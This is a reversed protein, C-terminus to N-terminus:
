ILQLCIKIDIPALQQHHISYTFFIFLNESLCSIFLDMLQVSQLLFTKCCKASYGLYGCFFGRHHLNM